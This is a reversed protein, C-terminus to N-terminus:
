GPCRRVSRPRPPLVLRRHARRRRPRAALRLARAAPEPLPHLEDWVDAGRGRRVCGPSGCRPATATPSRRSSTSSASTTGPASSRSRPTGSAPTACTRWRRSRRTTPAPAACTTTSRPPRATSRSRSTSTTPAVALFRAREPTIRVGNTSFKVGVHHDVAYQSCSGSTRGSRRSAAASTSTSSRCGSCSTSSRRASSRHDARAPRAPRLVVPLARVGPQLRLDAGLDPLDARRSRARLARGAEGTRGAHRRSTDPGSDPRPRIM